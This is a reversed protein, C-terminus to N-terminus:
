TVKKSVCIVIRLLSHRVKSGKNPLIRHGSREAFKGVLSLIDLRNPAARAGTGGPLDFASSWKADM